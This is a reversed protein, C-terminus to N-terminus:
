NEVQTARQVVQQVARRQAAQIQQRCAEQMAMLQFVLAQPAGALPCIAFGPPTTTAALTAAQTEDFHSVLRNFMRPTGEM